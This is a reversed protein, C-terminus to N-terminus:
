IPYPANKKAVRIWHDTFLHNAGPLEYKPMHCTVCGSKAVQCAKLKRSTDAHCAQCKSDYAAPESALERHADHCATCKIRADVADYCKSNALRYPQFRVNNLNRPGEAAIQEWTRHCQGCFNSTEETSLRGLKTMGAAQVNGAAVAASHGAAGDHCRECQVGPVLTEAQLVNNRVAGTAHCAICEKAQNPTMSRGAAEDINKPAANMAGITLDLGKRAQFYSVRSEYYKGDREFIYTQGALGQGLAWRIPATITAQGDTVSYISRSGERVIRYRYQGDQFKLDPARRLIGCREVFEMARTMSNSHSAQDAHCSQCDAVARMACFFVVALRKM